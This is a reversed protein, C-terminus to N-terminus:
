KLRKYLASLDLELGSVPVNLGFAELAEPRVEGVSGLPAGELGVSASRGAAFAWHEAERASVEAGTLTRCVSELYMKAESFNSNSHAVLCGLHWAESVGGGSRAYVRGVEFVRQPYDSKVNGSLAAMMTPLLADRLLSHEISRPDRVAIKSTSARGFKEYLSGADALEFTMLEIMGSGAMVTSASDLFQQFPHFRGPQKSPPYIPGIRDTGYGLAVEEAVDVPHLLDVRYRAGLVRSGKVELRSRGLAQAMQKKTLDLGLSSRVLDMDLPLDRPSLDPTIRGSKGRGISVTGIAAGAEAMTTTLVALADDGAQKDTGTVDIFINRTRATVKTAAGNIVPPFSLVMGKSDTIVPFPGRLPLSNGYSKGEPTKSLVQGVTSASRAGLPVFRFESTVARYALPPSIADLDHLGIAVTRRKRGLGNHLDEQLSIVQRVDEDDLRLGTATACAIYPRVQSLNADVSVAIGSPTTEYRPLGAEKGLLGRLARAIGFDTGFDPRNPSYEVRVSDTEVSEIDLGAYPLRGLITKRDAGVMKAFRPLSIRVVPM